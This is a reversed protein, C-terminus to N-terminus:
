GHPAKLFFSAVSAQSAGDARLALPARPNRCSYALPLQAEAHTNKSALLGLAISLHPGIQRLFPVPASAALLCALGRELQRCM